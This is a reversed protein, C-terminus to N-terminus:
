HCHVALGDGAREREQFATGKHPGTLPMRGKVNVPLLVHVTTGFGPKSSVSIAGHHARVIGQVEAMGLGRGIFKTSFFPEFIRAQTSADMGHGTDSVQLWVYDGDAVDEDGFTDAPFTRNIDATQTCLRILGPGEGLAESANVFLEM